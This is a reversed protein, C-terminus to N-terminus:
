LSFRYRISFGFDLLDYHTFRYVGLMPKWEFGFTLPLDRLYYEIGVIGIIGASFYDDWTGAMPGGGAYLLWNGKRSPEAHMLYMASINLGNPNYLVDFGIASMRHLLFGKYTFGSSYGARIGAAHDYPQASASIVIGLVAMTLVCRILKM